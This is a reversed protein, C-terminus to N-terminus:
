TSRHNGWLELGDQIPRLRFIAAEKATELESQKADASVLSEFDSLDMTSLAASFRNM